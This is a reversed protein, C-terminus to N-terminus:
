REWWPVRGAKVDKQGPNSTHPWLHSTQSKLRAHKPDCSRQSWRNEQLGHSKMGKQQIIILQIYRRCESERNAWQCAHPRSQNHITGDHPHSHLCREQLSSIGEPTVSSYGHTNSSSWRIISSLKRLLRWGWKWPPQVLKCEWWCYVLNRKRLTRALM